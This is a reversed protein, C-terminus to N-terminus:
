VERNSAMDWYDHVWIDLMNALSNGLRDWAEQRTELGGL